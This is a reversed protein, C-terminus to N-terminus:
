LTEKRLFNRRTFRDAPFLKLLYNTGGLCVFDGTWLSRSGGREGLYTAEGNEVRLTEKGVTNLGEQLAIWRGSAPDVAIGVMVISQIQETQAVRSKERAAKQWALERAFTGKANELRVSLANRLKEAQKQVREWRSLSNVTVPRMKGPLSTPPAMM